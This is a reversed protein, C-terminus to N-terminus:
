KTDEPGFLAPKGLALRGFAVNTVFQVAELSALLSQAAFGYSAFNLLSGLVFVGTGM